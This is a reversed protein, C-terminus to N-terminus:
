TVINNVLNVFKNSMRFEFTNYGIYTSRGCIHIFHTSLVAFQTVLAAALRTEEGFHARIQVM